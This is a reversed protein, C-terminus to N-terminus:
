LTQSKNRLTHSTILLNRTRSGRRTLNRIRRLISPCTEKKPSKGIHEKKAKPTKKQQKAQEGSKTLRSDLLPRQFVVRASAYKQRKEGQCPVRSAEREKRVRRHIEQQIGQKWSKSPRKPQAPPVLYMSLVGDPCYCM